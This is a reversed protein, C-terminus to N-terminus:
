SGVHVCTRRTRAKNESISNNKDPDHLNGALQVSNKKYDELLPRNVHLHPVGPKSRKVEFSHALVLVKDSDCKQSQVIELLNNEPQGSWDNQFHFLSKRLAKASFGNREESPGGGEQM